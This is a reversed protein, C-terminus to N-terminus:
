PEHHEGPIGGHRFTPHGCAHSLDGGPSAPHGRRPHHAPREAGQGDHRLPHCAPPGTPPNGLSITLGAQPDCDAVLVKKEVQALGAALNVCSTMKTVGGKQTVLAIVQANM